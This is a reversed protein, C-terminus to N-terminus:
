DEGVVDPINREDIWRIGTRPYLSLIPAPSDAGIVESLTQQLQADVDTTDFGKRATFLRVLADVLLDPEFWLVDTAATPTDTTPTEEGQPAVWWRSTYEFTLTQGASVTSGALQFQAQFPRFWVDITNASAGQGLVTHWQQATAPGSLPLSTSRNWGTQDVMSGFDAPLAYSMQNLVTTITHTARLHSWAYRRRLQNGVKALFTRLQIFAPDTSAYPDAVEALGVENAALNIVEAATRFPLNPYGGL